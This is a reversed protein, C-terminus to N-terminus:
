EIIYALKAKEDEMAIDFTLTQGGKTEGRQSRAIAEISEQVERSVEGKLTQNCFDRTKKAEDLNVNGPFLAQLYQQPFLNGVLARSSPQAQVQVGARQAAAVM